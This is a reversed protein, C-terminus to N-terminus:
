QVEDILRRLQGILYLPLSLLQYQVQQQLTTTVDIRTVSPHDTNFRVALQWQRMGMLLHLSKLTGTRGAKIEIPILHQGHQLIYDVEANSHSIERSWYYLEPEIFYPNLVRLMQGVFQEAMPGEYLLQFPQQLQQMNLGMLSHILGTDLLIVKFPTSKKGSALPIGQAQNSFVRHCVRATCLLELARKLTVSPIDKNVHSYVFKGGLQKPLSFLVEELREKNIRRAYKNFDDRYTALLDQHVQSVTLLSESQLWAVISAPLGGILFYDRLWGLLQEHLAQPIEDGLHYSELYEVTKYRDTAILFEEFSLPELHFYSIRGVPMSFDHENLVFDLLSGTAIVALEPLEEAFWRLKALLEPAVQIEDLFLLSAHVDIVKNQLAELSLMIKKVDNSAFLSKHEPNKEFNLEILELQKVRALERVLHTKGVQRAGRLVLPKRGSQTLWNELFILAKRKM